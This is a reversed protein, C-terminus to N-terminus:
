LAKSFSYQLDQGCHIFWFSTTWKTHMPKIATCVLTHPFVCVKRRRMKKFICKTFKKDNQSVKTALQTWHAMLLAIQDRLHQLCMNAGSLLNFTKNKGTFALKKYFLEYWFTLSSCGATTNIDNKRRFSNFKQMKNYSCHLFFRRKVYTICQPTATGM